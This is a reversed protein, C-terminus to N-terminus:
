SQAGGRELVSAQLARGALGDIPLLGPRLGPALHLHELELYRQWAMLVAPGDEDDVVNRVADLHPAGRSLLGRRGGRVRGLFPSM